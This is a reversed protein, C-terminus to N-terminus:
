LVFLNNYFFIALLPKSGGVKPNHARRAEEAGGRQITYAFQQFIFM